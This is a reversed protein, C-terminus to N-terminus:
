PIQADKSLDDAGSEELLKKLELIKLLSDEDIGEYKVFYEIDSDSMEPFIREVKGPSNKFDELCLKPRPIRPYTQYIYKMVDEAMGSLMEGDVEDPDYRWSNKTLWIKIPIGFNFEHSLNIEYIFEKKHESRMLIRDKIINMKDWGIGELALSELNQSPLSDIRTMDLSIVDGSDYMLEYEPWIHDNIFREIWLPGTESIILVLVDSSDVAVINKTGTIGTFEFVDGPLLHDRNDESNDVCLDWELIMNLANLIGPKEWSMMGKGCGCNYKQSLKTIIM